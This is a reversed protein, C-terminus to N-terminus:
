LPVLNRVWGHALNGSADKIDERQWEQKGGGKAAMVQVMLFDDTDIYM